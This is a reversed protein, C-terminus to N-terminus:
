QPVFDAGVLVLVDAVTGVDATRLATEPLGLVAALERGLALSEPSSDRLLVQSTEYGFRDANRGEVFVFGAPVIRSRVADVLGPTGVGNLVLVRNGGERVGPPVSQALLRDVLALAQEDDLRASAVDAGTELVVVPLATYQVEGAQADRGLGTLVAALEPPSLGSVESGAGLPVLLAQVGVDDDPLAAVLAVLVDQLRALRAQEVEGAALFSAYAIANAGSLVQPGPQLLVTDGALVPVDVEAQVGGVADVLAAATAQDLVWSGDVTVGLLDSLAARSADVGIDGLVRGFPLTGRTAAVALVQPPVLVAAGRSSVPDHALLASGAATGDTGRVQLLVTRQTREGSVPAVPPPTDDRALRVTVVALLVAAVALGAVVLRRRRQRRARRAAARRGGPVLDGSMSAGSMPAGSVPAGSMAAGFTRPESLPAPGAPESM